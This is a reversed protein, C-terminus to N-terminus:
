AARLLADVRPDTGEIWRRLENYAPGPGATDVAFAIMEDRVHEIALKRGGRAGDPHCAPCVVLRNRPDYVDGGHRRVWQERLVHHAELYGGAGCVECRRPRDAYWARRTM